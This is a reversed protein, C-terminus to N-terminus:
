RDLGALEAAMGDGLRRYAAILHDDFPDTDCDEIRDRAILWAIARRAGAAFDIEYRFGLDARAASNDFINNFQFNEACWFARQPAVARLLDAPIHVIEPEPAGLAAATLRTFHDWTMWEEGAVHYAREYTATNGAANVFARGIDDRHCATWLSTGNGHVVVPKGRRLRDLYTTAWGFTHLIGRSGEGYTYAPRIITVAFDGRAHAALLIEECQAKQVGYIFSGSTSRPEDAGVPYQTAPKAYIDVTSCFILQATRGRFARVASEAEAPTFTRMEIVCDWPGTTAMAAEFAALDTRDVVIQGVGAPLEGETQGRNVVTVREGRAVLGRTIATSIVGTGGVILVNM